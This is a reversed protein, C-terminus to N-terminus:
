QSFGYHAPRVLIARVLLSRKLYVGFVTQAARQIGSLIRSLAGPWRALLPSVHTPNPQTPDQNCIKNKLLDSATDTDREEYSYCTLNDYSWSQAAESIPRFATM